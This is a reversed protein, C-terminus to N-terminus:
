LKVPISFSKVAGMLNALIHKGLGSQPNEIETKHRKLTEQIQLSQSRLSYVISWNGVVWM